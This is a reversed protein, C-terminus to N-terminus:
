PLRKFCIKWVWPNTEWGYDRAHNIIDWLIHFSDISKTGEAEADEESIDQVREVRVNVIELTIRSAWRPMHISPRWKGDLAEGVYDARYYITDGPGLKSVSIDDDLPRWSERVWLHDGAYGYNCKLGYWYEDNPYQAFLLGQETKLKNPQPKIVRRTQTKRGELIAWVMEGSFLIPHEKM